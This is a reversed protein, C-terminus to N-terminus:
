NPIDSEFLDQSFPPQTELNSESVLDSANTDYSKGSDRSHNEDNLSDDVCSQSNSNNFYNLDSEQSEVPNLNELEKSTSTIQTSSSQYENVIKVENKILTNMLRKSFQETIRKVSKLDTIDQDGIKINIDITPLFNLVVNEDGSRAAEQCYDLFIEPILNGPMEM